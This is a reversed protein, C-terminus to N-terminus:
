CRMYNKKHGAIVIFKHLLEHAHAEAGHGHRAFGDMDGGIAFFVEDNVTMLRIAQRMEIMQEFFQAGVQVVPNEVEVQVEVPQPARQAKAVPRQRRIQFELGLGGHFKDGFIFLGEGGHGPAMPRIAHDAAVDVPGLDLGNVPHLVEVATVPHFAAGGQDFVKVAFDFEDMEM